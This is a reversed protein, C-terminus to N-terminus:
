IRLTVKFCNVAESDVAKVIQDAVSTGRGPARIFVTSGGSFQLSGYTGMEIYAWKSSM